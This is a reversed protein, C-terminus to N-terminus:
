WVCILALRRHYMNLLSSTLVKSITFKVSNRATKSGPDVEVVNIEAAKQLGCGLRKVPPFKVWYSGGGGRKRERGETVM